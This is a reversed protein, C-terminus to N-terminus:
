RRMMEPHRIVHRIETVQFVLYGALAAFLFSYTSAPEPKLILIAAVMVVGTAPLRAAMSLLIVRVPEM